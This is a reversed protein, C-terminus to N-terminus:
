KSHMKVIILIFPIVLETLELESVTARPRKVVCVVHVCFSCYSVGFLLLMTIFLCFILRKKLEAASKSSSLLKIHQLKFIVCKMLM